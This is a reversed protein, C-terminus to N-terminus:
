FIWSAIIAITIVAMLAMTSIAACYENRDNQKYSMPQIKPKPRGNTRKDDPPM